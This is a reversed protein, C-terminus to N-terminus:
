KPIQQSLPQGTIDQNLSRRDLLAGAPLLNLFDCLHPSQSSNAIHPVSRGIHSAIQQIEYRKIKCLHNGSKQILQIRLLLVLGFDSFLGICLPGAQVQPSAIKGYLVVYEMDIVLIKSDHECQPEAIELRAQKRLIGPSASASETYRTGPAVGGWRGGVRGPDGHDSCILAASFAAARSRLMSGAPDCATPQQARTSGCGARACSGRFRMGYKEGSFRM